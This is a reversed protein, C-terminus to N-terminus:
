RHYMCIRCDLTSLTIAIIALSAADSVFDIVLVLANNNITTIVSWLILGKTVDSKLTSKQVDTKYKMFM